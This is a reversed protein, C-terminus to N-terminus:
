VCLDHSDAHRQMYVQVYSCVPQVKWGQERALDLASQVLAAAIGRGELAPPVRTHDIRMVGDILQYDLICRLGNVQCELCAQALDHHIDLDAIQFRRRRTTMRLM